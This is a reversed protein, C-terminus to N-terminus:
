AKKFENIIKVSSSTGIRTAGAEVMKLLKELSDIGGSAKIEIKDGVHDKIKKIIEPDAGKGLFGTSTKIFKAGAEVCVDCTQLLEDETLMASEIIVKVPLEIDVVNKIDESVDTFLGSKVAGLAIMMDIEDVRYLAAELAEQRKNRTMGFPFGVVTCIKVNSQALIDKAFRVWWPNVCVSYFGNDYAEICLKEIDKVTAEPKLLTHDIIKGLGERTQINM